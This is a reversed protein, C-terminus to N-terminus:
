EEYEKGRPIIDIGQLAELTKKNKEDRRFVTRLVCVNNKWLIGKVPDYFPEDVAYEGSRKLCEDNDIINIFVNNVAYVMGTGQDQLLRLTTGGQGIMLVDTITLTDCGEFEETEVEWKRGVELQNGEKNAAFREGPLPLEGILSIIDGMTEKPIFDKKVGVEWYSGAIYLWGEGNMAVTLKDKYAQTMLKKLISKRLFM